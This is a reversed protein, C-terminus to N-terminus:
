QTKLIEAEVKIAKESLVWWKIIGECIFESTYVFNSRKCVSDWLIQTEGETEKGMNANKERGQLFSLLLPSHASNRLPPASLAGPLVTWSHDIHM